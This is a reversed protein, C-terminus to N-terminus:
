LISSDKKLMCQLVGPLIAGEYMGCGCDAVRYGFLVTTAGILLCCLLLVRM